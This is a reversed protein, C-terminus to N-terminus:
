NFSAILKIGIIADNTNTIFALASKTLSTASVNVVMKNNTISNDIEYQNFDFVYCDDILKYKINSYGVLSTWTDDSTISTSNTANYTNLDMFGHYVDEFIVSEAQESVIQDLIVNLKITRYGNGVANTAFTTLVLQYRGTDVDADEVGNTVVINANDVVADYEAELATFTDNSYGCAPTDYTAISNHILGSGSANSVLVHSPKQTIFTGENKCNSVILANPSYIGNGVLMGVSGVSKITGHNVCNEFQLSLIDKAYGGLFIGHYEAVSNMDAYNVCNEFLLSTNNGIAHVIFPSENNDDASVFTAQNTSYVKINQYINNGGRAIGALSAINDGLRLTLNKFTAGVTTNFLAGETSTFMAGDFGSITYNSQTDKYGDIVGNFYVKQFNISSMNNKFTTAGIDLLSISSILKYYARGSSKIEITPGGWEDSVTARSYTLKVAKYEEIKGVAEAEECTTGNGRMYTTSIITSYDKLIQAFQKGNSVLYPNAQTGDGYTANVVINENNLTYEDWVVAYGDVEKNLVQSYNQKGNLSTDGEVYEVVINDTAPNNDHDFTVTYKPLEPTVTDKDKTDGCGTLGFLATAGLALAGIFLQKKM